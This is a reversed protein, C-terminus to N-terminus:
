TSPPLLFALIQAMLSNISTYAEPPTARLTSESQVFTSPILENRCHSIISDASEPTTELHFQLGIVNPGFQFAQHECAASRALHIAGPPLDFTEGHWHFVTATPPFHFTHSPSPVSTIDFWGIERHKGPYISAGLASAILQAGLCIGLVPIGRQIASRIFQKETILWPLAAEDNVSMPGGLAIILDITALNPLVPSEYFRTDSISAGRNQLWPAISGLGEFPVHQLIHVNM